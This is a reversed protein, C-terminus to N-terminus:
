LVFCLLFSSFFVSSKIMLQMRVVAFLLGASCSPTLPCICCTETLERGEHFLYENSSSFTPTHAHIHIEGDGHCIISISFLTHIEGDGHLIVFIFFVFWFFYFELLRTCYGLFFSFFDCCSEDLKCSCLLTSIFYHICM